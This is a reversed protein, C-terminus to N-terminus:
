ARKPVRRPGTRRASAATALAVAALVLVLLLLQAAEAAALGVAISALAVAAGPLRWLLGGTGLSRRYEFTGLLFLAVGCALLWPVPGRGPEGLRTIVEEIGAALLVIGFIMALHSFAMYLALRSRRPGQARELAEAALRDPLDFYNLWLGMSVALGLVAAAVVGPGLPVASAGVGVAVVSEGLAIIILLGHREVFHASQIRFGSLRATLSHVILVGVGALWFPWRPWDPFFCPLLVLLGAALNFPLVGLIAKVVQPVGATMFLLGHLVVVVLYAVAFTMGGDGFAQPIALALVLFAAMAGFLVLKAGLTDPRVANTLWVYGDYMWWLLGLVLLAQGLGTLASDHRVLSTLQTVAFVFVLDFFLEVNSVTEAPRGTLRAKLGTARGRKGASGQSGATGAAPM